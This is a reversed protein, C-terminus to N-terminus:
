LICNKGIFHVAFRISQTEHLSLYLQCCLIQRVVCVMRLIGLFGVSSFEDTGILTVCHSNTFIKVERFPLIAYNGVLLLLM